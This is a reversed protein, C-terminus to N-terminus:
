GRRNRTVQELFFERDVHFQTFVIKNDESGLVVSGDNKEKTQSLHPWSILKWGGWWSRQRLGSESVHIAKPWAVASFVIFLSGVMVGTGRNDKSSRIGWVVFITGMALVLCFVALVGSVPPFLWEDAHRRARSNRARGLLWGMITATLIIVFFGKM